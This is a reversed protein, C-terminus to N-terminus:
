TDAHSWSCCVANALKIRNTTILVYVPMRSHFKRALIAHLDLRVTLNEGQEDWQM